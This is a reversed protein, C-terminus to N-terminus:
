SRQAGVSLVTSKSSNGKAQRQEPDSGVFGVLTISTRYAM